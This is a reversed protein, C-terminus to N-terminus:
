TADGDRASRRTGCAEPESDGSGARVRLLHAVYEGSVVHDGAAGLPAYVAPCDSGHMGCPAKIRTWDEQKCASCVCHRGHTIREGSGARLARQMIEVLKDHTEQPLAENHTVSAIGMPVATETREQMAPNDPCKDCWDGYYPGHTHCNGGYSM